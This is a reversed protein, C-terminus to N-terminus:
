SHFLGGTTKTTTPTPVIKSNNVNNQRHLWEEDEEELSRGEEEIRKFNFKFNLSSLLSKSSHSQNRCMEQNTILLYLWYLFVAM